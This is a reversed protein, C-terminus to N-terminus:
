REQIKSLDQILHNKMDGLKDAFDECITKLEQLENKRKELKEEVNMSM